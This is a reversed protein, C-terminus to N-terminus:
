RGRRTPSFREKRGRAAARGRSHASRGSGRLTRLPNKRARHSETRVLRATKIAGEEAVGALQQLQQESAPSVVGTAYRDGSADFVDDSGEPVVQFSDIPENDSLSSDDSDRCVRGSPDGGFMPNSMFMASSRRKVRRKTGGSGNSVASARRMNGASKFRRADEM